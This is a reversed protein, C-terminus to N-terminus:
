LRRYGVQLKYGGHRWNSGAVDTLMLESKRILAEPLYNCLLTVHESTGIPRSGSPLISGLRQDRRQSEDLTRFASSGCGYQADVDTGDIHCDLLDTCESM